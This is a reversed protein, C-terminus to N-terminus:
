REVSRGRERIRELAASLREVVEPNAEAVNREEGVDTSLDYLEFPKGFPKGRPKERGGSGNGAVLKWKGDRIAFMGAASHHVVPAPRPLSKGELLGLLSASDEAVSKGLPERAIAACTAYLDTLCVTVDCRSGPKVRGPWRAIFPVRHGAEWIDAKTGRLPGNARHREVHFAQVTAEDVHDKKGEEARFMYSGNDSTFVVLTNERVGGEDLAKLVEGVSWDVQVMFDGYEGLKTKGRFREHPQTPKHPATLPMYLFFPKSGTSARRVFKAAEETLKDLVGDIVFDAARPGKRVFYPFKVAKQQATPAATFRDNRIYVYPAMDLSASVGFFSDFGHHIPSDTIVGSFDIGPDGDWRSLNADDKKKPLAMGLHWKGVAGTAYGAGQLLDALTSRGQELLPPSYGGLVGSKLRTRWAYRGTLLGYRTPTCVASPSHADTFRMGDAALKDLHPTPIRSSSNYAQIDGYGMDDALIIVINPRSEAPAKTDGNSEAASVGTLTAVVLFTMNLLALASPSQHM